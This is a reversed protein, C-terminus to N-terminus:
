NENMEGFNHSMSHMDDSIRSTSAEMREMRNQLGVAVGLFESMVGSLMGSMNEMLASHEVGVAKAEALVPAQVIQEFSPRQAADQKWCREILPALKASESLEPRGRDCVKKMVAALAMNNWPVLGTLVEWGVIAFAYVESATTFIGDFCEPAAYAWTGAGSHNPMTSMAATMSGCGGTALGFDSLKAQFGKHINGSKLDHHIIPQPTQAHLFHMGAAIGRLLQAQTALNGVVKAPMEDLFKRLCGHPALEM